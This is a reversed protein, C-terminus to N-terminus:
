TERLYEIASEAANYGCMGHVGASPPTAASCLYVGPVGTEYPNTALRPRLVVQMATNAGTGIDGGVYNPNYEQMATTGRVHTAVVQSSIGPAFRELQAMVQETADAGGNPVHAYAWLPNIGDNSRSPDALYQQGVLMFPRQPMRGAGADREAAALEELTGGVHVTGAKRCEPNTWPVPGRVALEVKHAGPGYSYRRYARAVRSPLRDGLIHAAAQPATSLLVADVAGLEALSTVTRGTEIVGGYSQLAKALADTIARSGGAAVPWGGAHGSATLMVGVAASLPVDLRGFKHAAVGGFLAKAQPTSFRRALVTAPLAARLGFMALSIPHKPLGIIPGFVDETLAQFKGAVPGFVQKWAKGDVGLGDATRDIDRWLVGATGDELPPALEGEPWLWQLGFDELRLAQFAPSLVGTPHFASCDDHLVGPLTLESTRTGGGIRDSMEIVRVDHGEKALRVAATLGNPGSGVVVVKKSM